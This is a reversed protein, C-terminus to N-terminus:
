SCDPVINSNSYLGAYGPVSFKSKGAVEWSEQVALLDINNKICFRM